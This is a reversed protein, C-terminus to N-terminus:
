RTAPSTRSRRTRHRRACCGAVPWPTTSCRAARPPGRRRGARARVSGARAAARARGRRAPRGARARRAPPRRARAARRGRVRRGRAPAGGGGAAAGAAPRRRRRAGDGDRGGCGRPSRGRHQVLAAERAARVRMVPDPALELAREAFALADPEGAFGAAGALEVLVRPLEDPAPPEAVARRLYTSAADPAGRRRALVAAERLVTAASPDGSPDIALLHGAAADLDGGGEATAARAAARRHLAARDAAPTSEVVASRVVAHVFRLPREPAFLDAAVLAEIAGPVDTVGLEALDAAAGADCRDGLVAAARALAVAGPPLAQLRRRLSRVIAPPALARIAAPDAAAGRGSRRLEGVVESVLFANGGTVEHVAAVLDDPADGAERRVLEGVAERELAGVSLTHVGDHDLLRAVPGATLTADGARAALVVLVPLGDLRVALHDLFRLSPADAWQVDDAVLLLPGREALNAVLWFLGHLVAFGPDGAPEAPPSGLVTAALAAAGALVGPGERAAAPELLQRVVGFPYERELESAQARLRRVRLNEALPRLAALLASKGIGAPGEIVVLRGAGRSAAELHAELQGLERARGVLSRSTADGGGFPDGM